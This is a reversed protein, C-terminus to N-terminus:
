HRNRRRFYVVMGILSIVLWFFEMLFASLNFEFILSVIVWAAGLANLLSYSLQQSSLRGLQLLLYTVVILVVGLNGVVDHWSYAM